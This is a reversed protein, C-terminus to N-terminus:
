QVTIFRDRPQPKSSRVRGKGKLRRKARLSEYYVGLLEEPDEPVPQLEEVDEPEVDEEMTEELREAVFRTKKEENNRLRAISKDSTKM